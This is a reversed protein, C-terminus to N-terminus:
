KGYDDEQNFGLEDEFPKLLEFLARLDMIPIRRRSNVSEILGRWRPPRVADRESERRLRLIYVHSSDDDSYDHM